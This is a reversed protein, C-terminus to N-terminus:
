PWVEPLDSCRDGNLNLTSGEIWGQQNLGVNGVFLDVKAWDRFGDGDTDVTQGLVAAYDGWNMTALVTSATNASAYVRTEEMPMTYCIGPVPGVV